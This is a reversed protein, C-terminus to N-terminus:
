FHIFIKHFPLLHMLLNQKSWLILIHRPSASKKMKTPVPWSQTLFSDTQQSISTISQLTTAKQRSVAMARSSIFAHATPTPWNLRIRWVNMSSEQLEAPIDTGAVVTFDLEKEKAPLENKHCGTLSFSLALLILLAPIRYLCHFPHRFAARFPIHFSFMLTEEYPHSWSFAQHVPRFVIKIYKIWFLTVYTLFTPFRQIFWTIKHLFQM